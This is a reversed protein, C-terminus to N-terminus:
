RTRPASQQQQQQDAAEVREPQLASPVVAELERWKYPPWVVHTAVGFILGKPIPGYKNSDVSNEWNDGEVWCHGEPIRIKLGPKYVHPRVSDGELAIVRKIVYDYPEKPSVFVVIDGRNFSFCRARWCSVWVWDLDLRPFSSKWSSWAPEKEKWNRPGNFEPQMSKGYICAPFGVVTVVTNVVCWTLLSTRVVRSVLRVLRLAVEEEPRSNGKGVPTVSLILDSYKAYPRAKQYTYLRDSLYHKVALLYNKM